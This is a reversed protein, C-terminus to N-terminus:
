EVTVEKTQVVQNIINKIAAADHNSIVKINSIFIGDNENIDTSVSIKDFSINNDKLAAECIREAQSETLKQATNYNVSKDSFDFDINVKGIRLFLSVSVCLFVLTFVYRVSKSTNGTPSLMFMAGIFIAASSLGMVIQAVYKM